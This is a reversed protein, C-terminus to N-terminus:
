PARSAEGHRHPDHPRGERVAAGQNAVKRRADLVKRRARRVRREDMPTVPRDLLAIQVDLLEVEAAILPMEHEIADLEADSPGEGFADPTVPPQVAVILRM